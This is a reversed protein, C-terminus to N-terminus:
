GQTGSSVALAQEVSQPGSWLRRITTLCSQIRRRRQAAPACWMSQMLRWGTGGAIWGKMLCRKVPSFHKEIYRIRSLEWVLQLRDPDRGSSRGILHVIEAEAIHRVRYGQRRLRRCLDVDEFYMFFAEDLGGLQELLSRRVMFCAGNAWDVDQSLTCDIKHTATVAAQMTPAIRQFLASYFLHDRISPFPFCTQNLHGDGTWQKCSVAGVDPHDDLYAVMTELAQDGVITDSNLLLVHRGRSVALAQNVARAFGRNDPNAVIRMAPYATKLAAVTGDRSDNDVVIVEFAIATTHAHVSRLCDLLVEKTNYSVIAISLDIM